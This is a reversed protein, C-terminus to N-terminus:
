SRRIKALPRIHAPHVAQYFLPILAQTTKFIINSIFWTMENQPEQEMKMQDAM